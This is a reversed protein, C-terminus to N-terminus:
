PLDLFLFYQSFFLKIKMKKEKKKKTKWTVEEHYSYVIQSGKKNNIKIHRNENCDNFKTDSKFYKFLINWLFKLAIYSNECELRM